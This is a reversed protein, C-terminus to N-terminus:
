VAAADRAELINRLQQESEDDLAAFAVRSAISRSLQFVGAAPRWAVVIVLQRAGSRLM